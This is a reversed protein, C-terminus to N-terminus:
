WRYGLGGLVGLDWDVVEYSSLKPAIIIQISVKKGM